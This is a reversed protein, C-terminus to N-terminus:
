RGGNKDITRPQQGQQYNGHQRTKQAFGIETRQLIRKKVAHRRLAALQVVQAGEAGAAGAGLLDLDEAEGSPQHAAITHQGRTEIFGVLPQDQAFADGSRNERQHPEQSVVGSIDDNQAASKIPGDADARKGKQRCREQAAASHRFPKQEGGAVDVFLSEVDLVEEVKKFHLRHQDGTGARPGDGLGQAFAHYKVLYAKLIRAAGVPRHAAHAEAHAGFFFDRQHAFVPRSFGCEGPQQRSEIIGSFSADQEISHIKPIVVQFRHAAGHAYNKLIKNAVIKKQFFINAYALDVLRLIIEVLPQLLRGSAISGEGAMRGNHRRGFFRLRRLQGAMKRESVALHQATTKLATNVKGAALPLLDRQGASVDSCRLYDDQVLRCRREIGAGFVFCEFTKGFQGGALHGQQNRM